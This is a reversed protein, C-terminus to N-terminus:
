VSRRVERARNRMEKGQSGKGMGAGYCELVVMSEQSTGMSSQSATRDERRELSQGDRPKIEQPDVRSNRRSLHRDKGGGKKHYRSNFGPSQMHQAFVRGSLSIELGRGSDRIM